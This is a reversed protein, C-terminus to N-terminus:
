IYKSIPRVFISWFNVAVFLILYLKRHLPFLFVFLHYPVSQFYGDVFHFAHSAFPTPVIWKHHPKHLRKYILPHHLWRHVWYICYDTFM